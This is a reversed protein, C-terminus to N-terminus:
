SFVLSVSKFCKKWQGKDEREQLTKLITEWPIFISDYHSLAGYHFFRNNKNIETCMYEHKM